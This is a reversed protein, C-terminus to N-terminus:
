LWNGDLMGLMSCGSACPWSFLFGALDMMRIDHFLCRSLGIFVQVFTFETM